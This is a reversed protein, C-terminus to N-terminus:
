QTIGVVCNMYEISNNAGTVFEIVVGESESADIFTNLNDRIYVFPDGNILDDDGGLDTLSSVVATGGAVFGTAAYTWGTGDHKLLRISFGTDNGGALGGCKFAIVVHDVSGQSQYDAIGFNFDVAATTAGNLVLEYTIVGLWRKSSEVYEDTSLATIDAVITESDSTTRTGADNISTGTVSLSPVGGTATGVGGAVIFAHGGAVANATGFAQTLSAQTLNADATAFDYGGATYRTGAGLGQTSITYSRATAVAGGDFNVGDTLVGELTESIVTWNTSDRAVVTYFRVDGQDTSTEVFSSASIGSHKFDITDGGAPTIRIGFTTSVMFRFHLGAVAAPLTHPVQAVAGSDWFTTGSEAALITHPGSSVVEILNRSLLEGNLGVTINPGADEWGGLTDGKLIRGQAGSVTLPVTAVLTWDTDTPGNKMWFEGVTANDRLYVSGVDAAIGSAASPDTTGGVIFFVVGENTPVKVFPITPDAMVGLSASLIVIALLRRLFLSSM